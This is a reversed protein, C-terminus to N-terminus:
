SKQKSLIVVAALQQVYTGTCAQLHRKDKGTLNYTISKRNQKISIVILSILLLYLAFM